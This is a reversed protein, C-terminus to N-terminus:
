NFNLITIKEDTSFLEFLDTAKNIFEDYEIFRKSKDCHNVIKKIINYIIENPIIKKNVIAFADLTRSNKTILNFINKLSNIVM